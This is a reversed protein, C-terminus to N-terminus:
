TKRSVAPINAEVGEGGETCRTQGSSFSRESVPSCEWEQVCEQACVSVYLWTMRLWERPYHAYMRVQMCACVTKYVGPTFKVNPTNKQVKPNKLSKDRPTAQVRNLYQLFLANKESSPISVMDDCGHERLAPPVLYGVSEKVLSRSSSDWEWLVQKREPFQPLETELLINQAWCSLFKLNVLLFLTLINLFEPSSFNFDFKYWMVHFMELEQYHHGSTNIYSPSHHTALM